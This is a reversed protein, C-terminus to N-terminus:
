NEWGGVCSFSSSTISDGIVSAGSSSPNHPGYLDVDKGVLWRESHDSSVKFSGLEGGKGEGEEEM